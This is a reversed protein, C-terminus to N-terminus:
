KKSFVEGLFVKNNVGFKKISVYGKDELKKLNRSVTGKPLFTEKDLYKQFIGNKEIVVKIIKQENENLGLLLDKKLFKNKKSRSYRRLGFFTLSFAIIFPIFFNIFFNNKESFPSLKLLYDITLNTVPDKYNLIFRNGEPSIFRLDMSVNRIETYEPFTVELSDTYENFIPYYDISWLGESKSTYKDTLYVIELFLSQDVLCCDSVSINLSNLSYKYSLSKQNSNIKLDYVPILPLVIEVSPDVETIVVSDSIQLIGDDRITIKSDISTIQYGSLNFSIFIIALFLWLYNLRM